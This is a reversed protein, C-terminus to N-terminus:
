LVFCFLSTAKINVIYKTCTERDNGHQGVCLGVAVGVRVGYVRGWRRLPIPISIRSPISSSSLYNRDGLIIFIALRLYSVMIQYLSELRENEM